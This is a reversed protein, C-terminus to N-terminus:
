LILNRKPFHQYLKGHITKVGTMRLFFVDETVIYKGREIIKQECILQLLKELFQDNTLLDFSMFVCNDSGSFVMKQISACFANVIFELM